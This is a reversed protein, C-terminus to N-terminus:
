PRSILCAEREALLPSCELSGYTGRQGNGEMYYSVWDRQHVCTWKELFRSYLHGCYRTKMTAQDKEHMQSLWPAGKLVWLTYFMKSVTTIHGM